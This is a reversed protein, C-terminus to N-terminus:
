RTQWIILKTHFEGNEIYISIDFFSACSNNNNEKQLELETSYIDKIINRLPLTIMYHYCTMLLGFAIVSKEFM